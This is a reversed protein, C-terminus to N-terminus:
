DNDCSNLRKEITDLRHHAQKCSEEVKIIRDNHSKIDERMSALETRIEKTTQGIDDLKINIKTNEEVRKEVDSIDTRKNGKFVNFASLALSLVSVIIATSLEITM